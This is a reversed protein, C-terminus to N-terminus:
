ALRAPKAILVSADDRHRTYDRYLVGAILAASHLRLGPYRDLDWHTALGDSNMVLIMNDDWPYTFTQVKFGSQGVIGNVSVMSRRAGPTWLVSSVNGVGVADCLGQRPRIEVVSVAAGRTSRLRLHMRQLQDAPPRTPDSQISHVAENAASAALPGHGLGDVAMFIARDPTQHAFLHDGSVPEGKYPVNITALDFPSISDPLPDASRRLQVHIATGTAASYIDFRSSLRSIAGFGTGPSGATSYGDEM